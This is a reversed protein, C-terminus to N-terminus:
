DEEVIAIAERRRVTTWARDLPRVADRSAAARRAAPPPGVGLDLATVPPAIERVAAPRVPLVVRLVVGAGIITGRPAVLQVDIPCELAALEVPLHAPPIVDHDVLLAVIRGLTRHAERHGGSVTCLYDLEFFRTSRQREVVRGEADRVDRVDNDRRAAQERVGQLLLSVTPQSVTPEDPSGPEFTVPIPPDLAALWSELATDAHEIVRDLM